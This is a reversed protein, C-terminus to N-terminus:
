LPWLNNFYQLYEKANDSNEFMCSIEFNMNFANQTFNHSGIIVISEDIIIIKAHVLNKSRLKKAKVGVKELTKVIDGFNTIARVNVGRRGARVLAQNFLQVSAGPDNPYWRWDFMIIDISKKAEDIKPIVIKPYQKGIIAQM